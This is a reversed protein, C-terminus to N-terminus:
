FAIWKGDPSWAPTYVQSLDDANGLLRTVPGGEVPMTALSRAGAENVDFALTRGDPSLDPDAARLGSTRRRKEGRAVDLAYLDHYRYVTRWLDAADFYLTRGDRAFASGGPDDVLFFTRPRGSGDVAVRRLQPRSYGDYDAWVVERGDPTFGPRAA